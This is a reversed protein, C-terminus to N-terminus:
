LYDYFITKMITARTMNYLITLHLEDFPLYAALLVYFLLM